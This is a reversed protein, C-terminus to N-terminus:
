VPHQYWDDPNPNYGNEVFLKLAVLNAEQIALGILSDGLYEHDSKWAQPNELLQAKLVQHDHEQIAREFSSLAHVSFSLGLCLVFLISHKILLYKTM